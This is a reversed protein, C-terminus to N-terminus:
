REAACVLRATDAAVDAASRATLARLAWEWAHWKRPDASMKRGVAASPYILPVFTPEAGARKLAKFHEFSPIAHFAMHYVNNCSFPVLLGLPRRECRHLEDARTAPRVSMVRQYGFIYESFGHLMASAGAESVLSPRLESARETHFSVCAHSFNFPGVHYEM